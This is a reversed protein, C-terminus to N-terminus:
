TGIIDTSLCARCSHQVGGTVIIAYLTVVLWGVRLHQSVSLHQETCAYTPLHMSSRCVSVHFSKFTSHFM